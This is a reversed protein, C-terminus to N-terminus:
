TNEIVKKHITGNRLVQPGKKAAFLLYRIRANELSAPAREQGLLM